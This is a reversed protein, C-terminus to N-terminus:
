PYVPYPLVLFSDGSILPRVLVEIVDVYQSTIPFLICMSVVKSYKEGEGLMPSIKWSPRGRRKGGGKVKWLPNGELMRFYGKKIPCMLPNLHMLTNKINM